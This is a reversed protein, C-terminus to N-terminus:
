SEDDAADNESNAKTLIIRKLRAAREAELGGISLDASIGGASFIKITSLGLIREIPGRVTEIHQIRNFPVITRTHWILGYKYVVDQERVAIGRRKHSAYIYYGIWAILGVYIGLAVYLIEIPMTLVFWGVGLIIGLLFFTIGWSILGELPAAEAMPEFDVQEFQPLSDLALQENTVM